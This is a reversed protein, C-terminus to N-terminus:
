KAFLKKHEENDDDKSIHSDWPETADDDDDDDYIRTNHQPAM